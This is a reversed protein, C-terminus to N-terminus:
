LFNMAFEDSNDTIDRQSTQSSTQTTFFTKKKKTTMARRIPRPMSYASLVGIAVITTDSSNLEHQEM